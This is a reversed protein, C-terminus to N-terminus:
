KLHQQPHVVYDVTNLSECVWGALDIAVTQDRLIGISKRDSYPSLVGWLNKVGM